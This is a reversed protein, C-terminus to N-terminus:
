RRSSSNKQGVFRVIEDLGPDYGDSTDVRIEPVGLVVREFARVVWQADAHAPRTRGGVRQEIVEDAAYCQVVKVDALPLLPRLGQRWLRDQFAAEAVTTVGAALLLRLAGFFTEYARWAVDDSLEPVYHADGHVM